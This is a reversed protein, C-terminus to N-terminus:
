RGGRKDAQSSWVKSTDFAENAASAKSEFYGSQYRKLEARVESGDKTSCHSSKSSSPLDAIAAYAGDYDRAIQSMQENTLGRKAEYSLYTARLQAADHAYGYAQACASIFAVRAPRETSSALSVTVVAPTNPATNGGTLISSDSDNACGAHIASVAVILGAAVTAVSRMDAGDGAWFRSVWHTDRPVPRNCVNRSQCGSFFACRQRRPPPVVRPSIPTHWQQRRVAM